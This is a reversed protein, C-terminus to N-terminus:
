DRFGKYLRSLKVEISNTLVPDRWGVLIWAIEARQVVRRSAVDRLDALAKDHSARAQKELEEDNRNQARLLREYARNAADLKPKLRDVERARLEAVLRRVRARIMAPSSSACVFKRLDELADDVPRDGLTTLDGPAQPNAVSSLLLAIEELRAPSDPAKAFASSRIARLLAMTRGRMTEKVESSPTNLHRRLDGIWRTLSAVAWTHLADIQEHALAHAGLLLEPAWDLVILGEAALDRVRANLQAWPDRSTRGQSETDSSTPGQLVQAPIADLGVPMPPLAALGTIADLVCNAVIARYYRRFSGAGRCEFTRLVECKEASEGRKTRGEGWKEEVLAMAAEAIDVQLQGWHGFHQWLDWVIWRATISKAFPVKVDLGWPGGPGLCRAALCGLAVEAGPWDQSDMATQYGTALAENTLQEMDM